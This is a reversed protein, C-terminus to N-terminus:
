RSSSSSSSSSSMQELPSALNFMRMWIGNFPNMIYTYLSYYDALSLHKLMKNTTTELYHDYYDDEEGVGGCVCYYEIIVVNYELQYVIRSIYDIEKTSAFFENVKDEVEEFSKCELIKIRARCISM